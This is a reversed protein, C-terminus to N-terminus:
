PAPPSKKLPSIGAGALIVLAFKAVGVARLARDPRLGLWEVLQQAAAGDSALWLLLAMVMAFVTTRQSTLYKGVVSM